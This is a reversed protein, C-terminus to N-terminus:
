SAKKKVVNRGAGREIEYEITDGERKKRERSSFGCKEEGGKRQISAIYREGTNHSLSIRKGGRRRSAKNDEGGPL